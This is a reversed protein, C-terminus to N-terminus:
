SNIVAMMYPGKVTWIKSFEIKHDPFYLNFIKNFQEYNIFYDGQDDLM